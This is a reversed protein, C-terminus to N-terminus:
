LLHHLFQNEPRKPYMTGSSRLLNNAKTPPTPKKPPVQPAAPKSPKQELTSKEDKEEPKLSFYKKEAAIMEPKPAPAKAPPPPKKPKPLDKDLENIQVAFNDPFVGEKGNLEGKWWGAEGTEKSIM